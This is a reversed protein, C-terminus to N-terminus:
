LVILWRNRGPLATVSYRVVGVAAGGSASVFITPSLPTVIQARSPLVFVAGLM